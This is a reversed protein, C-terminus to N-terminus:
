YGLVPFWVDPQWAWGVSKATALEGRSRNEFVRREGKVRIDIFLDPLLGWDWLVWDGCFSSLRGLALVGGWGGVGLAPVIQLFLADAPM